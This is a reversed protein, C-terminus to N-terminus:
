PRPSGAGRSSPSPKCAPCASRACSASGGSWWSTTPAAASFRYHNDAERSDIAAELRTLRDLLAPEEDEGAGTLAATVAALEREWATLVPALERAVPLALLAVMRYTDIELLRQVTRGAQRPALGRDVILLRGFGDPQIRFDTLAVAAGGGVEAGILAHGGFLRASLTEPDAPGAPLLAVHTAVVTRGPLAAIWPPPVVAIAPPDFPDESAGAVIFTYRTFETHREWKLRFPGLDASYHNAGPSPAPAGAASALAAVHLREAERDGADSLLALYSL